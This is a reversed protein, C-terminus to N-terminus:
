PGEKSWLAIRYPQLHAAMVGEKVAPDNDMFSKAAQESDEQFVVLGVTHENDETSRGAMLVQGAAEATQLYEFHAAVAEAEEPTPGETLMASRTPRLTYLFQEM